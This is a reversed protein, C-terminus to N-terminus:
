PAERLDGARFFPSAHGIVQRSSGKEEMARGFRASLDLALGASEDASNQSVYGSLNERAEPALPRVAIRLILQYEETSRLLSLPCLECGSLRSFASDAAALTPLALTEEESELVYRKDWVEFRLSRQVFRETVLHGSRDELRLLYVCTGPLGSKITQTTREDLLDRARVEARVSEGTRFVALETVSGQSLAPTALFVALLPLLRRM